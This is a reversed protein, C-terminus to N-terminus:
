LDFCLISAGAVLWLVQYEHHYPTSNGGWLGFKTFEIDKKSPGQTCVTLATLIRQM